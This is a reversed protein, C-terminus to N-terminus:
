ATSQNPIPIKSKRNLFGADGYGFDDALFYVVNPREVPAAGAVALAPMTLFQRRSLVPM